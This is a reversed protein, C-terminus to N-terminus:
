WPRLKVLSVNFIRIGSFVRTSVVIRWYFHFQEYREFYESDQITSEWLM